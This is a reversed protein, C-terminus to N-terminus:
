PRSEKLNLLECYHAGSLKGSVIQIKRYCLYFQRMDYVYYIQERQRTCVPIPSKPSYGIIRLGDGGERFVPVFLPPKVAERLASECIGLFHFFKRKEPIYHLLTKNRRIQVM